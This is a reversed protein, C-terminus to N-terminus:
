YRMFKLPASADHVKREDSIWRKRSIDRPFSRTSYAFLSVLFAHYDRDKRNLKKENEKEGRYFRKVGPIISKSDLLSLNEEGRGDTEWILLIAQIPHLDCM